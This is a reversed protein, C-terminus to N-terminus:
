YNRVYEKGEKLYKLQNGKNIKFKTQLTRRNNLKQQFIVLHLHPGTSFGVNGSYGIVNGVKVRDGVKVESGNKKIHAYEAFTGDSHYIKILNNYKECSKQGCNKNNKEIVKVVIGDRVATIPTGIPMLFDLAYENQHSFEGNYGQYILFSNSEKFPLFYAYDKDYENKDFNGYNWEYNSKYSYRKRKNKVVLTTILQKKKRAEVVYIDKPNKNRMNKLSFKFKISIPCYALNDVYYKFGEQFKEKYIKVNNQSYSLCTFFLLLSIFYIRM